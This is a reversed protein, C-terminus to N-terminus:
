DSDRVGKNRTRQTRIHVKISPWTWQTMRRLMQTTTQGIRQRERVWVCKGGVAGCSDGAQSVWASFM